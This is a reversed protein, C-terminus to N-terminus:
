NTFVITWLGDDAPNFGIGVRRWQPDQIIARTTDNDMVFQWVEAASHSGQVIFYQAVTATSPPNSSALRTFIDLGQPSVPAVYDQAVMDDTHLVAAGAVTQDWNVQVLNRKTREHMIRKLLENTVPTPEYDSADNVTVGTGPVSTATSPNGVTSTQPGSLDPTPGCTAGPLVVIGLLVFAITSRRRTFFTRM